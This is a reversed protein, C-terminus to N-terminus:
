TANKLSIKYIIFSQSVTNGFQTVPLPNDPFFNISQFWQVTTFFSNLDICVLFILLLFLREGSSGSMMVSEGYSGSTMVGEGYSGSTM